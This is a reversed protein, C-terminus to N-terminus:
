LLGDRWAFWLGVVVGVLMGFYFYDDAEWRVLRALLGQALGCLRAGTWTLHHHRAASSCTWVLAIAKRPRTM